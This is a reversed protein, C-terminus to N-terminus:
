AKRRRFDPDWQAPDPEYATIIVIEDDITNDAVVVHQPRGRSWGLMLRSPYPTDAPYAEVVAGAFVVQRVQDADIQRQFMRQIAIQSMVM